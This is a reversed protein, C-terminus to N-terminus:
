QILELFWVMLRQLRSPVSSSTMLVMHFWSPLAVARAMM